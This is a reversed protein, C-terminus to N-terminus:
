RATVLGLWKEMPEFDRDRHLLPIHNLICFTGIMVDVTKRVTVGQKRLLRYNKATQLAAERGLMERFPLLALLNQARKYETDSSFGQLVEALIIDGMLINEQALLSDLRDTEVCDIGNFYDIWVSSDTLIM